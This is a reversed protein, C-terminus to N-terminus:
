KKGAKGLLQEAADEYKNSSGAMVGRKGEAADAQARRISVEEVTRFSPRRKAGVGASTLVGALKRAQALNEKDSTRSM